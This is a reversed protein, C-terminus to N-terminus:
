REACRGFADLSILGFYNPNSRKLSARYAPMEGHVAMAVFDTKGSIDYFIARVGMAKDYEYLVNPYKPDGLWLITGSGWPHLGQTAAPIMETNLVVTSVSDVSWSQLNVLDRCSRPLVIHVIDGYACFYKETSCNVLTTSEPGLQETDKWFDLAIDGFVFM